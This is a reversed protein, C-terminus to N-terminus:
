EELKKRLRDYEEEAIEGKALRENLIELSRDRSTSGDKADSQKKVYIIGIILIIILIAFMRDKRERDLM